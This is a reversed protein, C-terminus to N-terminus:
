TVIIGATRLSALLANLQTVVSAEDTADTVAVGQNVLGKVTTSANPVTGGADEIAENTETNFSDYKPNYDKIM